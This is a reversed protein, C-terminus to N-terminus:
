ILLATRLDRVAKKITQNIIEMETESFKQLVFKEAPIPMGAQKPKIGLRLRIFDKTGIQNIISEVGKHGAPGRNQQIKYEGIELDIEDHIVILDQGLIKYYNVLGVVAEGSNNMMTQPKALIIKKNKVQGQCLLSKFKKDLQWATLNLDRSLCDIAMFGLNHRTKQYKEGPNGLGIILKTM